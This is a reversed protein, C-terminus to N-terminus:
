KTEKLYGEEPTFEEKQGLEYIRDILHWKEKASSESSSKQFRSVFAEWEAQRPLSALKTMANEHDFDEVTDMIMFLTRGSLYIEMDIIGVDRMGQEIEKWVCGMSHVIKYESILEVNDNLLLSKCYRRFKKSEMKLRM